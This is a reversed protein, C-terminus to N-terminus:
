MCVHVQNYQLIDDLAFCNSTFFYKACFIFACFWHYMGIVEIVSWVLVICQWFYTYSYEIAMYCYAIEAVTM